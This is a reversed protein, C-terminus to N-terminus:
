SAAKLKPRILLQYLILGILCGLTNDFVDDLEFLGLRFFLQTLETALSLASGVLLVKWPFSALRRIIRPRAAIRGGQALQPWAFPLLYGFPIYLLINLVIQLLLGGSTIVLGDATWAFARRYSWFLSLKYQATYSSTRFLVTLYLIVLVYLCLLAVKVSRLLRDNKLLANSIVPLLLAGVFIATALGAVLAILLTISM